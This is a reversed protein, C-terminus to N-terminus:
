EQHQDIPCNGKNTPKVKQTNCVGFTHSIQKNISAFANWGWNIKGDYFSTVDAFTMFAPGGGVTVSWDNFKRAKNDFKQVNASGSSFTNPYQDSTNVAISDQAYTAIPLTALLLLGLKM